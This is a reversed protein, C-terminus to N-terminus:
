CQVSLCRVRNCMQMMSLGQMPPQGTVMQIFTCGFAWIDAKTTVTQVNWQEPSRFV